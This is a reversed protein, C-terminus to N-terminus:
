KAKSPQPTAFGPTTTTLISWWLSNGFTAFFPTIGSELRFMAVAGLLIAIVSFAGVTQFTSVASHRNLLSYFVKGSRLVRLFRIVRAARAVRLAGVLPISSVFDLWNWRIFQWRRDAARLRYFFDGLFVMCIGFDVVATTQALWSPYTLVLELYLEVIVYISLLLIVWDFRSLGSTTKHQNTM